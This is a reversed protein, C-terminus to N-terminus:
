PKNEQPPIPMWFTIDAYDMDHKRLAERLLMQNWEGKKHHFNVLAYGSRKWILDSHAKGGLLSVVKLSSDEPLRESVPVWQQQAELAEVKSNQMNLATVLAVIEADKEALLAEYHATRNDWAAKAVVMEEYDLSAQDGWWEQWNIGTM